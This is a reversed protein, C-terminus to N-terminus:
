GNLVLRQAMGTGLVAFMKNEHFAQECGNAWPGALTKFDYEAICNDHFDCPPMKNVKAEVMNQETDTM